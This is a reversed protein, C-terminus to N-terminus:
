DSDRDGPLNALYWNGDVKKMPQTGIRAGNQNVLVVTASNGHVTVSKVKVGSLMDAGVSLLFENKANKANPHMAANDRAKELKKIITPRKQEPYLSAFKKIDSDTFEDPTKSVVESMVEVSHDIARTIQREPSFYEYGGFAIVFIMAAAIIKKINASLAHFRSVGQNLMQKGKETDMHKLSDAAASATQQIKQRNEESLAEKAKNGAESLAQSASDKLESFSSSDEAGQKLEIGCEKCFNDTDKYHRGCNSCFKM